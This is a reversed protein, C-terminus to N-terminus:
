SDENYLPQPPVSRRAYPGQLTGSMYDARGYPSPPPNFSSSLPGSPIRTGQFPSPPPNFSSSLPGSPIAPYPYPNSHRPAPNSRDQSSAAAKKAAALTRHTTVSQPPDLFTSPSPVVAIWKTGSPVKEDHMRSYAQAADWANFEVNPDKSRPKYPIVEAPLSQFRASRREYTGHDGRHWKGDPKPNERPTTELRRDLEASRVGTEKQHRYQAEILHWQTPWIQGQSAHYHAKGAGHLMGPAVVGQLTDRPIELLAESRSWGELHQEDTLPNDIREPADYMLLLPQLAENITDIVALTRWEQPQQEVIARADELYEIAAAMLDDAAPDIEQLLPPLQM